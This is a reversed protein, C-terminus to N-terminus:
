LHLLYFNSKEYFYKCLYSLHEFYYLLIMYITLLTMVVQQM